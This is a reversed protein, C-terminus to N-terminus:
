LAKSIFGLLGKRTMTDSQGSLLSSTGLKALM